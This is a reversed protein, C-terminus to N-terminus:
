TPCLVHTDTVSPVLSIDYHLADHVPHITDARAALPSQAQLLLLIPLM